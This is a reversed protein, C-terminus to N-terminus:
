DDFFSTLEALNEKNIFKMAGAIFSEKKIEPDNYHTIMIVKADPHKKLIDRTASIGDLNKMKIDMLVYDPRHESYAREAGLGDDHEHIEDFTSSLIENLMKRIKANDDIILLKM